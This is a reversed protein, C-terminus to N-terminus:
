KNRPGGTWQALSRGMFSELEVIERRFCDALRRHSDECLSPREIPTGRIRDPLIARALQTSIRGRLLSAVHPHDRAPSRPYADMRLVDLIPDPEIRRRGPECEALLRDSTGVPPDRGTEFETAHVLQPHQTAGPLSRKGVREPAIARLRPDLRLDVSLRVARQKGRVHPVELPAGAALVLGGLRLPRRALAAPARLALTALRDCRPSTARALKLAPSRGAEPPSGPQGLDM